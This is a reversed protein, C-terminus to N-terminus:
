AACLVFLVLCLRSFFVVAHCVLDALLSAAVRFVCVHCSLACGVLHGVLRGDCLCVFRLVGYQFLAFVVLSFLCCACLICCRVSM